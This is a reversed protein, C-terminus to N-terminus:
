SIVSITDNQTRVVSYSYLGVQSAKVEAISISIMGCETILLLISIHFTSNMVETYYVSVSQIDELKGIVAFVQLHGSVGLTLIFQLFNFVRNGYPRM